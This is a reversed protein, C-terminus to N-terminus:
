KTKALGWINKIAVVIVAPITFLLIHTFLSGLIVGVNLNGVSGISLLVSQAGGVGAAIILVIASLLFEKTEKSTINVMGVIIGLVILLSVFAARVAESLGSSILGLVIALLVGMAFSYNGIKENMSM